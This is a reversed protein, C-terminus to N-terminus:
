AAHERVGAVILWGIGYAVCLSVLVTLVTEWRNPYLSREPLNPRVVPVLYLHKRQTDLRAAELASIASAYNKSAVEQQLVLKQYDGLMPAASNAGGALQGRQADITAQLSNLNAQQQRLEPSNPKMVVSMQALKSKETALQTDLASSEEMTLATSRTPDLAQKATRFRTMEENIQQLRAQTHEVENQAGQMADADARLSYGNVEQDSAAMLADAIRKADAPRFARVRLTVIGTSSNTGVSVHRLYAHLLQEDSPHPPLWNLVDLGSRRLMGVLDVRQQLAKVADHSALFAAVGSTEEPAERLGSGLMEGLLSSSQSQPGRVFFQAESVYQSAAFIWCYAAVALTPAVVTWFPWPSHRIWRRTRAVHGRVKLGLMRRRPALGSLRRWAPAGVRAVTDTKVDM